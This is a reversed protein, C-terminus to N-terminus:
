RSNFLYDRETAREIPRDVDRYKQGRCVGCSCPTGHSRYAYHKGDSPNLGLQNLRNKYKLMKLEHRRAKNM